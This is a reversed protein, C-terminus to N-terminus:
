RTPRVGNMREFQRISDTVARGVEASATLTQVTISYTREAVAGGLTGASGGWLPSVGKPVLEVPAEITPMATGGVIKTVDGLTRRVLGFSKKIGNVFGGIVLQGANTLLTADKEPPGKWSTLKSTLGGLTDKVAGIKSKIGDIFGSILKGGADWLTAGINWVAQRATNVVHVLVNWVTGALSSLIGVVGGIASSVIQKIGDWAGSWNGRLVAAATNFIGKIVGLAASVTAKIAGFAGSVVSKIIGFVGSIVIQIHRFGGTILAMLAPGYMNWINQVNSWLLRWGAMLFNLVPSVGNRWLWQFTTSIRSVLATVFNGFSAFLPQLTTTYWNGVAQAATQIAAWAKSFAPAATTTWWETVAQIAVQIAAWATAVLEKGLETQTFFWALGAVLGAVAAIILGIPNAAMAVNWLVTVARAIAMVKNFGQWAAVMTTIAIVIPPIAARNKILFVTAKALGDVIVALAPGVKDLAALLKDGISSATSGADAGTTKLADSISAFATRLAGSLTGWLRSLVPLLKGGVWDMLSRVAPVATGSIWEGFAKGMPEVADTVKDLWTTIGKFAEKFMPFIVTLFAAGVRSLAARMNAFAGKTTDGATLAAGGVLEDMAQYFSEADVKGASVMKRLEEQTVGYQEALKSWIPIGRDAIQNIETTQARNATAIKGFISSMDDMSTGAITAADGLRGIYKQLEEGPKIGAAMASAAATAASDLGFSTGKVSKLADDMVAKVTETSHGLGKLKAQANEINMMRDFGGKLALGVMALGFAGAWKIGSKFFGVVRSGAAKFKSGLSSLGTENALGRMASSFRRTDALVSVIVRQDAM